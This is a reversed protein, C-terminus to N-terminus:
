GKSQTDQLTKGLKERYVQIRQLEQHIPHDEIQVQQPQLLMYSRYLTHTLSLLALRTKAKDLLTGDESDANIGELIEKAAELEKSISSVISVAEEKTKIGKNGKAKDTM